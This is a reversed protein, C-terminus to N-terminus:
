SMKWQQSGYKENKMKKLIKHILIDLSGVPVYVYNHAEINSEGEVKIKDGNMKLGYRGNLTKVYVTKNNKLKHQIKHISEEKGKETYDENIKKRCFSRVYEGNKKKYAKVLEYGYPCNNM